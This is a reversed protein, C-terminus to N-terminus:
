LTQTRSFSLFNLETNWRGPLPRSGRPAFEMVGNGDTDRFLGTWSQGRTNGAAQFWVTHHFPRDDLGRTLGSAGGLPYGDNWM